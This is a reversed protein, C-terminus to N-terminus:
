TTASILSPSFNERSFTREIRGPCPRAGDAMPLTRLDDALVSKFRPCGSEIASRAHLRNQNGAPGSREPLPENAPKQLVVRGLADRYKRSALMILFVHGLTKRELAKVIGGIRSAPVEDPIHTIPVAEVHRHPAHIRNNM